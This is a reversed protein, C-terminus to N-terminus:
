NAATPVNGYTPTQLVAFKNLPWYRLVARGIVADRKIPQFVRSDVSQHRHDGFVLLEGPAIVWSSPCEDEELGCPETLVPEEFEDYIYPETLAVGNVVVAGDRLEVREGPLGIVRKIFPIRGGMPDPFVIVDGRSYDDFRPTLKDVLVSEGSLLTQEMSVQDVVYPQAIFTQVVFFIIITLILTEAIARLQGFVRASTSPEVPADTVADPGDVPHRELPGVGHEPRSTGALDRDGPDDDRYVTV